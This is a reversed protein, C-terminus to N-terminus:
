CQFIVATEMMNVAPLRQERNTFNGFLCKFNGKISSILSLLFALKESYYKIIIDRCVEKLGSCSQKYIKQQLEKYEDGTEQRAGLNFDNKCLIVHLTTRIEDWTRPM